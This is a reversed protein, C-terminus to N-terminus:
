LLANGLTERTARVLARVPEVAEGVMALEDLDGEIRDFYHGAPLQKGVLRGRAQDRIKLFEAYVHNHLVPLRGLPMRDFHAINDAGAAAMVEAGFKLGLRFRWGLSLAGEPAYAFSVLSLDMHAVMELLDLQLLNSTVDPAFPAFFRGQGNTEQVQRILSLESVSNISRPGNDHLVGWGQALFGDIIRASAVQRLSQRGAPMAAFGLPGMRAAEAVSLMPPAPHQTQRFVLCRPHYFALAEHLLELARPHLVAKDELVYVYDGRLGPLAAEWNESMWLGGTRLYRFRADLWPALGLRYMEATASTDDNDVLVLEFDGFTQDHLSRIAYPLVGARNKTPLVVSFFPTTM